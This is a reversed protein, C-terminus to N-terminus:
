EAAIAHLQHIVEPLGITEDGDVDQGSGVYVPAIGAHTEVGALVKLSTLVDLLTILGDGDIDGQCTRGVQRCVPLSQHETKDRAYICIQYSGFRTFDDYQAEYVGDGNEDRLIVTPNSLVPESPDNDMPQPPSIRAWIQSIGNASTVDACWLRLSSECILSMADFIAQIDPLQSAAVRGRGIVIDNALHDATVTDPRGDGNLDILPTQDLGVLTGAKQFANYLHGESYIKEWFYYSFSMRGDHIFWAREDPETSSIVLCNSISKLPDLFSGSRCADYILIVRGTWGSRLDELWQRLDDAHLGQDQEMEFFAENGHGTMFLILEDTPSRPDRTWTKIAYELRESTAPDDVDSTGDGDVDIAPGSSLFYINGPSYGQSTLSSYAMTSCTLTANWLLNGEYPGGGAVIVAKKGKLEDVVQAAQFSVAGKIEHAGFDNVVKIDYQGATQQAPLTATIQDTGDITSQSIASGYEAVDSAKMYLATNPYFGLGTLTTELPQGVIGMAPSVHEILIPPNEDVVSVMVDPPDVGDSTEDQSVTPWILISCAQTGDPLGDDVATVTVTRSVSWDAETFVVSAPSVRCENPNSSSLAVTVDAAPRSTLVLDFTAQGEPENVALETESVSVSFTDDDVVTVAVDTTPLGNYDPDTSVAPSTEILCRRNEGARHDDDGTPSVVVAVGQNWNTQNLRVTTDMITCVQTDSVSLTITVDATPQSTLAVKLEQHDESETMTLQPAVLVARAPKTFASNWGAVVAPDHFSLNRILGSRHNEIALLLVGTHIGMPVPNIWPGNLEQIPSVNLTGEGVVEYSHPDLSFSDVFGTLPNWLGQLAYYSRLAAISEDPLYNLAAGAGHIALTGTHPAPISPNNANQHTPLAGFAYYSEGITTGPDVPSPNTCATLGWANEGYTQFLDDGNGATGDQHDICFRRNAIVAQRNNEWINVSDPSHRDVGGKEVDLWCSSLIYASLSGTWSVAILSGGDQPYSGFGRTRANYTEMTTPHTPAGLALINALLSEDSYGDVYGSFGTEPTWAWFFKHANEGAATEVMWNWQVASFLQDALSQIAANHTFYAKATLVGFQLITNSFLSIESQTDKRTGTDANLFSYFFGRYGSNGTGSEPGQPLANLRTLIQEVRSELLTPDAWGRHHGICYAALQYGIGDLGVLDSFSAREYVFGNEDTFNLFYSFARQSVLDLFADDPWVAADFAPADTVLVLDDLFMHSTRNDNLYDSFGFSIKKMQDLHVIGLNEIPFHYDRWGSLNPIEFYNYIRNGFRDELELKMTHTFDGTGNGKARFRFGTVGIGEVEVAYPNNWSTLLDGHLDEFNMVLNSEEIKGRLSLSIGCYGGQPVAYDIKLCSGQSAAINDTDFSLAISGQDLGSWTIMEGGLNNAHNRDNFDEIGIEVVGSAGATVCAGLLIGVALSLGLVGRIRWDRKGFLIM